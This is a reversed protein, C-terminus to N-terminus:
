LSNKIEAIAEDFRSADSGGTQAMDPRGGGGQAGVFPAVKKVLDVASVKDKIDDSVGIVVSSKDGNVAFLAVVLKTKYKDKLDDVIAKLEKAQIDSLKKAVFKVGKIEEAEASTSNGGNVLQKKLEFIKAEM